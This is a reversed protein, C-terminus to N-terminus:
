KINGYLKILQNFVQKDSKYEVVEFRSNKLLSERTFYMPFTLTKGLIEKEFFVKRNEQSIYSDYTMADWIEKGLKNRRITETSELFSQDDAMFNTQGYYYPLHESLLLPLHKQSFFRLFPSQPDTIIQATTKHLVYALDQDTVKFVRRAFDSFYIFRWREDLLYAISNSNKFYHKVENIASQIEYETAPESTLGIIYDIERYHLHLKKAIEYVTEKTPNTSGGEIRSIAGASAGIALELDMQSMGARERFFRIRRGTVLQKSKM